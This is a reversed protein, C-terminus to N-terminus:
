NNDKNAAAAALEELRQKVEPHDKYFAENIGSLIDQWETTIKADEAMQIITSLDRVKIALDYHDYMIHDVALKLQSMITRRNADTYTFENFLEYAKGIHKQACVTCQDYPETKKVNLGKKGHCPCAM